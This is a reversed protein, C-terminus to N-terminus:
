IDQPSHLSTTGKRGIKTVAPLIFSILIEGQYKELMNETTFCIALTAFISLALVNKNKLLIIAPYIVFSFIFCFLGILGMSVAMEIYQNHLNKETNYALFFNKEKYKAMLAEDRDGIGTGLLPQEIFIEKGCKWLALRTNTSNWKDKDYQANFHNESNKNDFRYNIELTGEFRNSIKPFLKNAVFVFICIGIILLIGEFWKKNKIIQGALISISIIGLGFLPTKSALLINIFLLWGIVIFFWIRIKGQINKNLFLNNILILVAVSIYFSFYVAQMGFVAGINDSYLYGSDGTLITKYLSHFFGFVSAIFTCNVFFMLVRYWTKEEYDIFCFALPMLFLPLRKRLVDLGATTNESLLLVNLVQLIFFLVLVLLIKNKLFIESYKQRPTKIFALLLIVFMLVNTVVPAQHFFLSAIYALLCYYIIGSSRSGPSCEGTYNFFSLIKEM